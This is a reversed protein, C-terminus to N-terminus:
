SPLCQNPGYSLTEFASSLRSFRFMIMPTASRAAPTRKSMNPIGVSYSVAGAEPRQIRHLLARFQVDINRRGRTDRHWCDNEVLIHWPRIGRLSEPVYTTRNASPDRHAQQHKQDVPHNETSQIEQAPPYMIPEVARRCKSHSSIASELPGSMERYFPPKHGLASTPKPTFELSNQMRLVLDPYM